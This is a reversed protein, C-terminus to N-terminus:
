NGVSLNDVNYSANGGDLVLVVDEGIILDKFQGSTAVTALDSKEAYEAHNHDKDAKNALANAINTGEPANEFAKLVEKITDITTNSDENNFSNVILDLNAKDTASMFGTETASAAKEVWNTGNYQYFIKDDTCYCIAGLVNAYNPINILSDIAFYGSEIDVGSAVIGADTNIIKAGADATNIIKAM